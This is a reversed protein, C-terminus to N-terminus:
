RGKLRKLEKSTVFKEFRPVSIEKLLADKEEQSECVVTFYFDAKNDERYKENMAERQEKIERIEDKTATTSQNDAFLEAFRDDDGFMMNVDFNDFGFEKFDIESDLALDGLLNFDFAGQMSQNNLQVNIIKEEREDVDIVAIDLDYYTGKELKDLQEIRRHGGVLNGTRKNWVLPMVLGHKKLGKKLKKENEADIFRPNYAALNVQERSITQIEFKQYQTKM